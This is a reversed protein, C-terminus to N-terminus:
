LNEMLYDVTAMDVPAWDVSNLESVNLWRIEEPETLTPTGSQIHCLFTTMTVTGFSYDYSSTVLEKLDDSLIIKLEENIERKIAATKTENAEIKGGPFEWLGELSKGSGRKACLIKDDKVIVAGVVNIQKGM